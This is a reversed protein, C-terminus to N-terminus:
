FTFSWKKGTQNPNSPLAFKAKLGHLGLVFGARDQPKTAKVGFFSSARAKGKKSVSGSFLLNKSKASKKCQWM